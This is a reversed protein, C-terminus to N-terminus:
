EASEEPPLIVGYVTVGQSYTWVKNATDAGVDGGTLQTGACDFKGDVDFTTKATELSDQWSQLVTSIASVVRLYDIGQADVESRMSLQIQAQITATPITPTEYSRPLAKVTLYGNVAKDEMNKIKEGVAPQWVGLTQINSGEPLSAVLADILKSEIIQEIM